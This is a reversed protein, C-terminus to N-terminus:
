AYVTATKAAVPAKDLEMDAIKAVQSGSGNASSSSMNATNQKLLLKPDMGLDGYDVIAQSVNIILM